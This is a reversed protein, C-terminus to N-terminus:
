DLDIRNSVPSKTETRSMAWKPRRFLATFPQQTHKSCVKLEPKRTPCHWHPPCYARSNFKKDRWVPVCRIWACSASGLRGQLSATARRTSNACRARVHTPDHKMRNMKPM